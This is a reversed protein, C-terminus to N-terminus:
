KALKRKRDDATGIWLIYDTNNVANENFACQVIKESHFLQESLKRGHLAKGKQYHKIKDLNASNNDTTGARTEMCNNLFVHLHQM